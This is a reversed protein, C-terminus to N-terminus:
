GKNGLHDAAGIVILIVILFILWPMIRTACQM